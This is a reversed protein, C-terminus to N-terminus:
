MGGGGGAGFGGPKQLDRVQGGGAGPQQGFQGQAGQRPDAAPNGGPQQPQAGPGNGPFSSFLNSRGPSGAEAGPQAMGGAGPGMQGGNQMIADQQQLTEESAEPLGAVTRLYSELDKDPFLVMGSAALANIYAGLRGLDVQEPKDTYFAPWNEEPIGNLRGLLPVLERNVTSCMQQVLGEVASYFVDVKSTGLAQAGQASHGLLLFDALVTTAIQTTYRQIVINTDFQRTGGSTLLTLEYLPKGQDNTDSPIVAGEQANRKVDRVLNQYARLTAGANPDSGLRAAAIVEAPVKMVPFGALDREVGIGEIEEIRKSFYYPRYANRLLSRGEPNNRYSRTRFLLLKSRPIMRIGGTWPMQVVGMIDNNDADMIWRLITEQSRVPLKRIGVMGDDYKSTFRMDGQHGNRVKLVIEHPSYGFIFMSLAEQIFDEWTHDMDDMLSEYFEAALMSTPTQDAPQIHWGVRSIAQFITFMIAGVTANSDSMERYMRAGRMGRLNPDYEEVVFGGYIKLGSNGAEIMYDGKPLDGALDVSAGAAASRPAGQGMPSLSTDTDANGPGVMPPKPRGGSAGARAANASAQDSPRPTPDGAAIGPGNGPPFLPKAM